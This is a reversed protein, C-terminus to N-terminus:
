RRELNRINREAAALRRFMRNIDGAGPSGITPKTTAPGDPTLSVAIERVVEQIVEGDIVATVRDGLTYHTLYQQGPVDVPALSLRTEGVGDALAEDAAQGLETADNTDRRDVFSEIRGWVNVEDPSPREVVTRATGEGSGGVAVYNVDSAASEYEAESLTGLERSFRVVGTKDSPMYTLFDIQGSVTPSATVTFGLGGGALALERLLDMLVQWRARGTVSVGTGPDASLVMGPVRRVALASPGVNVDVYQRLITSCTGTRVDYAQTAYPPTATAPQPAAWRRRLWVNDDYGGLVLRNSDVKLSRQRLRMPGSFVPTVVGDDHRVVEIGYGPTTLLAALPARGDLELVWSGVDNFKRVLQLRVFDDVQGVRRLSPDRAYVTWTM